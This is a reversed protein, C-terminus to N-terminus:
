NASGEDTDATADAGIAADLDDLLQEIATLDPTVLPEPATQPAPTPGATSGTAETAVPDTPESVVSVPTVQPDLVTGAPAAAAPSPVTAAAGSGDVRRGCGALVIALLLAGGVVALTGKRRHGPM